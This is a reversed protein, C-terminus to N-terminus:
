EAKLVAVPDVDTATRAPALCAAGSVLALVCSVALLTALDHPEVGYLFGALIRTFLLAAIVGVALGAMSIRMGQGLVMWLVGARDAGLAMRIGLERQRRGVSHALSGYLGAAALLMAVLAFTGILLAQFLPTTRTAAMRDQMPLLNQPPEIPNFRAVARRLEPVITETPLQTRVVAQFAGRYQTYPVYIAVRPGEEPRTQVVDEVVGVIRMLIGGDGDSRRVMADIPNGGGLQTRVFSENVLAM